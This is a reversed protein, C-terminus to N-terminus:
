VQWLRLAQWAVVALEFPIRLWGALGSLIQLIRRFHPQTAVVAPLAGAGTGL